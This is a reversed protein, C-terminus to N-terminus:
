AMIQKQLPSGRWENKYYCNNKPLILPKLHFLGKDKAKKQQKGQVGYISM